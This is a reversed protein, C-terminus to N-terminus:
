EIKMKAMEKAMMEDLVHVYKQTTTISAHGLIEQVVRIDMGSKLMYTAASHRLDHLRADPKGCEKALEHFWKSVTDPHWEPFIRGIRNEVLPRLAELAPPQLPVDRDKKGKTKTLRIKALELNVREALAKLMEKRRAGTWLLSTYYRGLRDDWTTAKEIIKDLTAPPIIRDVLLAEREERIMKIAPMKKLYGEEVAFKFAYKIQRLYGNVTIAKAQYVRGKVTKKAMRKRKFEDFKERDVTQIFIDGIDEILLKLSLEDKKITDDSIGIRSEIYIKRFDSLKLRTLREIKASKKKKLEDQLAAARASAEAPDKTHLSMRQRGPLEVSYWGNRQYIRMFFNM